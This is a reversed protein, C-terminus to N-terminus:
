NIALARVIDAVREAEDSSFDVPINSIQVILGKRLPIPFTITDMANNLVDRKKIDQDADLEQQNNADTNPGTKSSKSRKTRQNISPSFGMPNERYSLFDKYASNFRSKYTVLSQPTFKDGQINAFRMALSNIDLNRIDTKEEDELIDMFAVAAAKRARATAKKLLGKNSLYDIFDIFARSSYADSM